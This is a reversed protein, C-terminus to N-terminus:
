REDWPNILEVAANVFGKLNRTVLKLHHVKATAAILADIAPLSQGKLKGQLTGWMDAIKLDIPLIREEFYDPLEVELWHSIDDYKKQDTIGGIGKRIEGLTIVSIFLTSSDKENVWNKVKENPKLKVLESIINTDLLYSM